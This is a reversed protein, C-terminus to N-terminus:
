EFVTGLRLDVASTFSAIKAIDNSKNALPYLLCNDVAALAPYSTDPISQVYLCIVALASSSIDHIPHSVAASV